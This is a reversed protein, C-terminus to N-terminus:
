WSFWWILNKSRNQAVKVQCAYAIPMCGYRLITM